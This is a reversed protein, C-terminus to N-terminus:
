RSHKVHRWIYLGIAFIIIIGVALDFNDLTERITEWREGLRTGLWAFLACWAFAAIATYFSFKALPMRAIGAPFSIYTNVVPLFRGFVIMLDGRKSFWRDATDLDKKSILFYKGYKEILPRGGYAGIWYSLLSGTLNGLTGTIVVPWFALKGQAILFGSFPMIAESPIPIGCREITMLIFIGTLGTTNIIGIILQVLWDIIVTFM